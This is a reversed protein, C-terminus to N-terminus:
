ISFSSGGPVLFARGGLQALCGNSASVSSPAGLQVPPRHNPTWPMLRALPAGALTRSQADQNFSTGSNAVLVGSAIIRRAFILIAAKVSAYFLADELDEIDQLTFNM